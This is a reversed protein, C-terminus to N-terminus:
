TEKHIHARAEALESRLQVTARCSPRKHETSLPTSTGLFCDSKAEIVSWDMKEKIKM